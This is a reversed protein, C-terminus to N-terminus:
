LMFGGELRPQRAAIRRTKMELVNAGVTMAVVPGSIDMDFVYGAPGVEEAAFM